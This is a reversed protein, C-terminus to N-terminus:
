SPDNIIKSVLVGQGRRDTDMLVPVSTAALHTSVPIPVVIAILPVNM